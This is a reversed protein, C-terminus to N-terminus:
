EMIQKKGMLPKQRNQFMMQGRLDDRHGRVARPIRNDNRFLMWFGLSIIISVLVILFALLIKNKVFPWDTHRYILYSLLTLIAAILIFEFSIGLIRTILNAERHQEIKQVIELPLLQQPNSRVMPLRQHPINSNIVNTIENIIEKGGLEPNEFESINYGISLASIFVFFLLGLVILATRLTSYIAPKRKTELSKTYLTKPDFDIKSDTIENDVVFDDERETNLVTAQPNTKLIAQSKQNM